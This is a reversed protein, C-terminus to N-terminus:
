RFLRGFYKNIGRPVLEVKKSATPAMLLSLLGLFHVIGGGMMSTGGVFLVLTHIFERKLVLERSSCALAGEFWWESRWLALLEGCLGVTANLALRMSVLLPAVLARETSAM